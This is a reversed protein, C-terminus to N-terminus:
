KGGGGAYPSSAHDSRDVNFEYDGEYYGQGGTLTDPREQRLNVSGSHFTAHPTAYAPAASATGLLMLSMIAIKLKGSM